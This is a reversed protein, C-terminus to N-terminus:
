LKKLLKRLIQNVTKQIEDIEDDKPPEGKGRQSINIQYAIQNLNIGVKRVEYRLNNIEEREEITLVQGDSLASKVLYRSLSLNAKKARDHLEAFEKETTRALIQKIYVKSRPKKTTM